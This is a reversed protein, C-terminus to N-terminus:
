PVFINRQGCLWHRRRGTELLSTLYKTYYLLYETTWSNERDKRDPCMSFSFRLMRFIVPFIRSELEMFLELM